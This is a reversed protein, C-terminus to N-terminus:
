APFALAPDQQRHLHGTRWRDPAQSAGRRFGVASGFLRGKGAHPDPYRLMAWSRHSDGSVAVGNEDFIQTMGIKKGILGKLM